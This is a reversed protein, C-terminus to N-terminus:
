FEALRQMFRHVRDFQKTGGWADWFASVESPSAEFELYEQDSDRAIGTLLESMAKPPEGGSARFLFGNPYQAGDKKTRMLFAWDAPADSGLRPISYRTSRGRRITLQKGRSSAFPLDREVEAVRVGSQLVYDHISAENRKRGIWATLHWVGGLAAIPVVVWPSIVRTVALVVLSGYALMSRYPERSRGGFFLVIGIAAFVILSRTNM